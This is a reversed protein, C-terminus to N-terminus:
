LLPVAAVQSLIEKSESSINASIGGLGTAKEGCGSLWLLTVNPKLAKWLFATLQMKSGWASAQGLAGGGVQQYKHNM